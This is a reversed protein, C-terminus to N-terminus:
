SCVSGLRGTLPGPWDSHMPASPAHWTGTHRQRGASHQLGTGTSTQRHLPWRSAAQDSSQPSDRLKPPEQPSGTRKPGQSSIRSGASRSLYSLYPGFSLLKALMPCLWSSVAVQGRLTFGQSIVGHSAMHLVVLIWYLNLIDGLYLSLNINVMIQWWYFLFGM